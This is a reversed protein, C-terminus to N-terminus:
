LANGDKDRKQWHLIGSVSVLHNTKAEREEEEAGYSRIVRVFEYLSFCYMLINVVSMIPYILLWARLHNTNDEWALKFNMFFHAIGGIPVFIMIGLFVIFAIYKLWKGKNCGGVNSNWPFLHM